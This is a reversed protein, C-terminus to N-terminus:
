QEATQRPKRKIGMQPTHNISTSIGKGKQFLLKITLHGNPKERTLADYRQPMAHEPYKSNTMLIAENGFHINEMVFEEIGAQTISNDCKEVITADLKELNEKLEPTILEEPLFAGFTTRTIYVIKKQPLESQHPGEQFCIVQGRDQYIGLYQGLYEYSCPFNDFKAPNWYYILDCMSFQSYELINLTNQEIVKNPPGEQLKPYNDRLIHYRIDDEHIIEFGWLKVTM